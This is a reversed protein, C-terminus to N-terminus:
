SGPPPGATVSCRLDDYRHRQKFHHSGSNALAMGARHLTIIIKDDSRLTSEFTLTVTM